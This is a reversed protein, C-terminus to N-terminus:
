KEEKVKQPKGWNKKKGWSAGDKGKGKFQKKTPPEGQWSSATSTFQAKLPVFGRDKGRGKYHADTDIM